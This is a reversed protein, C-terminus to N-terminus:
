THPTVKIDLNLNQTQTRIWGRRFRFMEAMKIMELVPEVM